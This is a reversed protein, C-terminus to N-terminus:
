DFLVGRSSIWKEPRYRRSSRVACNTRRQAAKIATADGFDWRGCLIPKDELERLMTVAKRSLPM